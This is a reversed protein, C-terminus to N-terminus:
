EALGRRKAELAAQSQVKILHDWTRTIVDLLFKMMVDRHIFPAIIPGIGAREIEDALDIVLERIVESFKRSYKKALKDSPKFVRVKFESM